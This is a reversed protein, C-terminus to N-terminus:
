SQAPTRMQQRRPLPEGRDPPPITALIALVEDLLVPGYQWCDVGVDLSRGIPDFAGHAHGYLHMAGAFLGQWTRLPYHCCVIRENGGSWGRLSLLDHCDDFIRCAKKRSPDHNGRVLEISKCAIRKRVGLCYDISARGEAGKWQRPGTFDGLHILHDRRNVRSNIGELLLEDMAAVDHLAVPRAFLGIAEEHGFHTDATIWIRRAM